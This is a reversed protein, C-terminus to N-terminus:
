LILTNYLEISLCRQYIVKQFGSGLANYVEVACRIIKHTIKNQEEKTLYRLRM